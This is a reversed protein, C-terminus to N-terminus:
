NAEKLAKEIRSNDFKASLDAGVIKETALAVLEITDNYLAKRAAEVDKEIQAHADKVIREANKKAKDESHKLLEAAELKATTVIESAEKRAADLHEATKEQSDAAAKQAATAAEAAAEINAQREDVQKMLWPFVFKGLVFVLILFAILQLILLRWDIGLAGFLGPEATTETAFHHLVNM